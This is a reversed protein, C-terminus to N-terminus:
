RSSREARGNEDAKVEKRRISKLKVVTPHGDEVSTQEVLRGQPDFWLDAAITGKLRYHSCEAPTDNITRTETEVLTLQSTMRKGTDAEFIQLDGDRDEVHPLCWFATTWVYAASDKRPKEDVVVDTQKEHFTARVARKTFGDVCNGQVDVPRGAKWTEQGRYSYKYTYVVFSIQVDCQMSAKVVGRQDDDVTIRISGGPKGDVQVDFDRVEVLRPREAAWGGAALGWGAALSVMWVKISNLKPSGKFFAERSCIDRRGKWSM